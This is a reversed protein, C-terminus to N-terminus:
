NARPIRVSRQKEERRLLRTISIEITFIPYATFRKAKAAPRRALEPTSNEKTRRTSRIHKAEPLVRLARRVAYFLM